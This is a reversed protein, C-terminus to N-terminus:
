KQKNKKNNNNKIKKYKKNNINKQIKKKNKKINFKKIKLKLISKIFLNM